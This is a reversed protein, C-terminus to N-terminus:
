RLCTSFHAKIVDHLRGSFTVPIGDLDGSRGFRDFYISGIMANSPGFFSVGWRLDGPHTAPKPNTAHVAAVVDKMWPFAELNRVTFECYHLGDLDSRTLSARTMIEEPLYIVVVKSVQNVALTHPWPSLKASTKDQSLSLSALLLIGLVLLM